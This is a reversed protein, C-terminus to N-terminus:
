KQGLGLKIIDRPSMKSLDIGAGQGAGTYPRMPPKAEAEPKALKALRKATAEMAEPTKDEFELLVDVSIGYKTALKNAIEQRKVANAAEFLERHEAERSTLEADKQRQALERVKIAQERKLLAQLKPDGEAEEMLAEFEEKEKQAQADLLQQHSTKFAELEAKYDGAEKTLKAIQKDLASHRKAVEEATFTQQEQKESPSPKEASPQGPKEQLADKPEAEGDMYIKRRKRKKLKRLFM